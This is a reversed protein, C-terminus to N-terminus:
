FRHGTLTIRYDNPVFHESSCYDEKGDEGQNLIHHFNREYIPSILGIKVGIINCPQQVQRIISVLIKNNRRWKSYSPGQAESGHLKRNKGSDTYQKM